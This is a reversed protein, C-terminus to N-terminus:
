MVTDSSFAISGKGNMGRNDLNKIIWGLSWAGFNM